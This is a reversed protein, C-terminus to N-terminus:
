LRSCFESGLRYTNVELLHSSGSSHSALFNENKGPLCVSLCLHEHVHVDGRAFESWEEPWQCTLRWGSLGVCADSGMECSSFSISIFSSVQFCAFWKRGCRDDDREGLESWRFDHVKAMTKAKTELESGGLGTVSSANLFACSDFYGDGGFVLNLFFFKEGDDGCHVPGGGAIKEM